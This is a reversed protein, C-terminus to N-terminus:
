YRIWSWWIIKSRCELLNHVAILKMWLSKGIIWWMKMVVIITVSSWWCVRVCRWKLWMVVYYSSYNNMAVEKDWKKDCIKFCSWWLKMVFKWLISHYLEECYWALTLSSWEDCVKVVNDCVRWCTEVCRWWADVFEDVFVEVFEKVVNKVVNKMILIIWKLLHIRLDHYLTRWM